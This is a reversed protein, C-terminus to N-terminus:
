TKLEIERIATGKECMIQLLGGMNQQKYIDNNVM